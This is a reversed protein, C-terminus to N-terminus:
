FFAVADAEGEEPMSHGRGTCKCPGTEKQIRAVDFLSLGIGKALIDRRNLDPEDPPLTANLSTYPEGKGAKNQCVCDGLEGYIFDIDRSLLCGGARCLVEKPVAEPQGGAMIIDTAPKVLIRLYEPIGSLADPEQIPIQFYYPPRIPGAGGVGGSRDILPYYGFEGPGAQIRNDICQQPLPQHEMHDPTGYGLCEWWHGMAYHGTKITSYDHDDSNCMDAYVSGSTPTCLLSGGRSPVSPTGWGGDLPIVRGTSEHLDM